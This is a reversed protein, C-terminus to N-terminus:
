FLFRQLLYNIIEKLSAVEQVGYREGAFGTRVEVLTGVTPLLGERQERNRDSETTQM